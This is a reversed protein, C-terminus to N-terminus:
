SSCAHSLSGESRAPCLRLIEPGIKELPLQVQVAGMEFAARPMGYVVSSEEDQGITAAGAARMALLGAAGDRGMGTLLVGIGRSRATDAMSKFLVDVSPRHGNVLDAATLKCRLTKLGTVELHAPGGPAVYVRGPSLVDGDRAETVSPLCLRSLRDAFTATFHAPMHQTIVTPPCNEPFHSLVRILAEVGGTSSGIAVIRDGPDFPGAAKDPGSAPGSRPRVRAHAAAKVKEILEAAGGQFLAAVNETPKAFYDVAGQELAALTIEAGRQTLTSVMVVPMPRLRMIKELFEIGNMNPMEVDLTLVDPNLDKIMQRAVAPEPASGVVEIGPDSDLVATLIRRITASDDVILVRVPKM